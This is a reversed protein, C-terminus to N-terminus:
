AALYKLFSLCTAIDMDAGTSSVPFTSFAIRSTPVTALPNLLCKERKEIAKNQCNNSYQTVQIKSYYFYYNMLYGVM